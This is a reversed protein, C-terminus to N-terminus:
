TPECLGFTRNELEQSGKCLLERIYSITYFPAHTEFNLDFALPIIAISTM